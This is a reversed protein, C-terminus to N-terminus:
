DKGIKIYGNEHTINESLWDQFNDEDEEKDYFWTKMLNKFNVLQIEQAVM